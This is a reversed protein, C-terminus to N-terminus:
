DVVVYLQQEAGCSKCKITQSAVKLLLDLLFALNEFGQDVHTARYEAVIKIANMVELEEKNIQNQM